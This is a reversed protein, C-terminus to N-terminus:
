KSNNLLELFSQKTYYYDIEKKNLVPYRQSPIKSVHEETFYGEDIKYLVAFDKFLTNEEVVTVLEKDSPVTSIQIALRDANTKNVTSGHILAPDFVIVDGARTPVPVMHENIVDIFPEFNWKMHYNSRFHNGFLHSRPIVHLCGNTVETDSLSIWLVLSNGTTEDVLSPDQHPRSGSVSHAPNICYGVSIPFRLRDINLIEGVYSKVALNVQEYTQQRIEKSNFSVSNIFFDTHEFDKSQRIQNYLERLGLIVDDPIVKNFVVFGYRSLADNSKKDRFLKDDFSRSCLKNIKKKFINRYPM